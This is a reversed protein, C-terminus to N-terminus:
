PVSAAVPAPFRAVLHQRVASGYPGHPAGAFSTLLSPGRCGPWTDWAWALYGIRRADLWNMLPEVYGGSCDNEGFETVLVPIGTLADATRQWCPASCGGPGYLHWAAAIAHAPDAPAWDRWGSLDSASRIGDLLVVNTAGTSRVASLLTAMGAAAYAPASGSAPIVCGDRWCAWSVHRPENYLEFAVGPDPAFTTAVSRWFAPAHDVDPMDQQGTALLGGPASWHLDVVVAIGAATLQNVYDVIAARYAEGSTAAPAGNVGLWCDENLPLRVVDVHWAAMAQISAGDVPGVFISHGGVCAYETGSRSVGDLQVAVGDRGVIRDGVVRLAGAAAPTSGEPPPASTPLASTASAVGSPTGRGTSGAVAVVAAGIAVLTAAV